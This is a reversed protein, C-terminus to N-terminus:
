RGRRKEFDELLSQFDEEHDVEDKLIEAIIHFTIADNVRLEDLMKDYVEIACREGDVGQKLLAVTDADAPNIYKCNAKDNIELINSIPTGGLQIIREALMGAHKLEDGAHEEFERAVAERRWGRAIKASIWYQYYALWEDACARNLQNLLKEVDTRVIQKGKDGM